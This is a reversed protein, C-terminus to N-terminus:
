RLGDRLRLRIKIDERRRRLRCATKIRHHQSRLLMKKRGLSKKAAEKKARLCGARRTAGLPRADQHWPVTKPCLHHLREM